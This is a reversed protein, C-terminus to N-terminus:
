SVNETSSLGKYTGSIQEDAWLIGLMKHLGFTWWQLTSNELTYRRTTRRFNVSTESSSIVEM